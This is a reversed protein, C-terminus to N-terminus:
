QVDEPQTDMRRAATRARYYSSPFLTILKERKPRPVAILRRNNQIRAQFLIRNIRRRTFGKTERLIKYINWTHIFPPPDLILDVLDARGQRLDERLINRQKRVENARQLSEMRKTLTQEIQGRSSM